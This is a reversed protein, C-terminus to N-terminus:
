QIRIMLLMKDVLSRIQNMIAEQLGLQGLQSAKLRRKIDKINIETSSALLALLPDLVRVALPRPGVDVMQQSPQVLAM